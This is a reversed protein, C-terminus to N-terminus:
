PVYGGQEIDRPRRGKSVAVECLARAVMAVNDGRGVPHSVLVGDCCEVTVSVSSARYELWVATVHPCM